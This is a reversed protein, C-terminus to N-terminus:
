NLRNREAKAELLPRLDSDGGAWEASFTEYATRAGATDHALTMARALELQALSYLVSPASQGPHDRIQRFENTAEATKQLRLFAEGLLYQPLYYGATEYHISPELSELASAPRNGYLEAAARIVPMWIYGILTHKPYERALEDTLKKADRTEGCVSKAVAARPLSAENREIALAESALKGAAECQGLAAARLAAEAAYTAAAERIGLRMAADIGRRTFDLSRRWQGLAAAAGAQWELTVYDDPKGATWEVERQMAASDHNLFALRFLQHHLATDDLKLNRAKTSIDRAEPFRDSRLYFQALTAYPSASNPDIRMATRSEEIANELQGMAGYALALNRHAQMDRPYTQTYLKLTEVQKDLEGTVHEYYTSTILFRERDSVRARLAYARAACNRALLPEHTNRYISALGAYGYAFNPDLEVARRYFAAADRWKGKRTQQYGLSYARLAELSGTTLELLADHKQISGLSEGLRARLRSAAQSLAKLIQEKSEPEVQERALTEGNHGDLAQLTVIYHAGMPAISGAIFAKLGQRECIQRAIDPTVQQDAHRGMLQLAQQTRADPFINLFPSQELQVALGQKLTDDFVADGTKNTFDALLVTDQNTLAPRNRLQWLFGTVVAALLFSAILLRRGTLWRLHIRSPVAAIPPASEMDPVPTEKPDGPVLTENPLIRVPAVFRYGRGPVTVIFRHADPREGLAKRLASVNKALGVEEVVTEAWVHRMLEDKDLLRGGSAVMVLLTDFVKPALAVQEGHKLLLRRSPDLRFDEFEYFHLHNVTNIM